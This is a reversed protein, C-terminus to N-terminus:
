KLIYCQCNLLYQKLHNSEDPSLCPLLLILYPFIRQFRQAQINLTKENIQFIVLAGLDRRAKFLKRNKQKVINAFQNNCLSEPCPRRAQLFEEPVESYGVHANESLIIYAAPQASHCGRRQSAFDSSQLLTGSM